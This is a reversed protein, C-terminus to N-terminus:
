QLNLKKIFGNLITGVENILAFAEKCQEESLYNLEICILLQTELEYRSGRAISLFHAFEKSSNRGAGEAINSPISVVSRRM